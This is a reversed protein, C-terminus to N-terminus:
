SKLNTSELIFIQLESTGGCLKLLLKIESGFLNSKDSTVELEGIHAIWQMSHRWM